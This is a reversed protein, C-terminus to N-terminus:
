TNVKSSGQEDDEQSSQYIIKPSSQRQFDLRGKEWSSGPPPEKSRRRHERSIHASHTVPQNSGANGM